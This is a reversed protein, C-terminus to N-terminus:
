KKARRMFSTCTISHGGLELVLPKQQEFGFKMYVPKGADSADVYAVKGQADAKECGWEILLRAVGLKRYEPMTCLMDLYVHARPPDGLNRRREGALAGFFGDWLGGDSGEARGPMRDELMREEGGEWFGWKAYGV